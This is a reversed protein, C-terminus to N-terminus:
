VKGPGILTKVREALEAPDFPKLLYDEAGLKLGREADGALGVASLFIVKINKTASKSKLETCVEYGNMGPMMVDLIVLEPRKAAVQELGEFGSHATAVEYGEMTLCIQVLRAIATEDDVVLIRKSL